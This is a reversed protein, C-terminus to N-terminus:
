CPYGEELDGSDRYSYFSGPVHFIESECLGNEESGNPCMFIDGLVRGDQHSAFRGFTDHLELEAGCIPCEM